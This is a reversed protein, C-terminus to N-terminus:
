WTYQLLVLCLLSQQFHVRINCLLNNQGHTRRFLYLPYEFSHLMCGRIRIVRDFFELREGIPIDIRIEM